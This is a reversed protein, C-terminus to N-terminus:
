FPRSPSRNRHRSSESSVISYYFRVFNVPPATSRRTLFSTTSDLITTSSSSSTNVSGVLVLFRLHINLIRTSLKFQTLSSKKIVRFSVRVYSLYRIVGRLQLFTSLLNLVQVM